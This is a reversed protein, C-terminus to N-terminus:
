RVPIRIEIRTGTGADSEIWMRGDFKRTVYYAKTLGFGGGRTPKDGVNSGRSGFQVLKEIEDAPIGRGTDSVIFRLESGSNFLGADIRGGPDTYKRANALLDRMVDQFIAPMRIKSGAASTIEFNVLYDGAEHEALNYVIRYGGRSNKEIARLVTLFNGQLQAVDHDVWGYPDDFRAQIEKARVRLVDFISEINEISELVEFFHEPQRIVRDSLQSLVPKIAGIFREINAIQGRAAEADSLSRAADITQTVLTELAPNEGSVMILRTLELAVINLVNVVSHMDLLNEEPVTLKLDVIIEM